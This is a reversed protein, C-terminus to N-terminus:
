NEYNTVCMTPGPEFRQHPLSLFSQCKPRHKDSPEIFLSKLTHFDILQHPPFYELHHVTLDNSASSTMTNQLLYWFVWATQLRHAAKPSIYVTNFNVTLVTYTAIVSHPNSSFRRSTTWDREVGLWKSPTSYLSVQLLLSFTFFFFKLVWTTHTQFGQRYRGFAFPSFSVVKCSLMRISHELYIVNQFPIGNRCRCRIMKVFLKDRYVQNKNISYFRWDQKKIKVVGEAAEYM